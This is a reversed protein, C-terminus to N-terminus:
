GKQIAQKSQLLTFGFIGICINTIFIFLHVNVATKILPEATYGLPLLPLTFALEFTGANAFGTLPSLASGDAIITAIWAHDIPLDGLSSALTALALLKIFWIAVTFAYLSLWTRHNKFLPAAFQLKKVRGGLQQLIVMFVPLAALLLLPAILAYEGMFLGGAFFLLLSLLVHADFLRLLVLSAASYKYEIDLQHRSLAPLALEGLRMPLLFSVTNHVLSVATCSKFSLAQVRTYAFYIRTVRLMHSLLIFLSALAISLISPKAWESLTERWGYSLQVWVILGLVMAAAFTIKATTILYKPM